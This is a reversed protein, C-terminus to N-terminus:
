HSTSHSCLQNRVENLFIVHCVVGLYSFVLGSHVDFWKRVQHIFCQFVSAEQQEIYEKM